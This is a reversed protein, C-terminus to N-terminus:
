ERTRLSGDMLRLEFHSRLLATLRRAAVGRSMEPELITMPDIPEGVELRFELRANPLKYWAQGRKLAPPDCRILVPLIPARSCLAMHAWGRHFRGLGRVPSRSGEPFVVLSRGAALRKACQEIAREGDLNPIYGAIRVIGRLAPNSWAQAKVVCDAQPMRSILYVVDLLTPHNAVVLVGRQSLRATGREELGLLGLWSGLRVFVRFAHHIVRQALLDRSQLRGGLIWLIPLVLTALCVAGIGFTAFLFGTGIIRLAREGREVFGRARSSTAPEFPDAADPALSRGVLPAQSASADDELSTAADGSAHAARRGPEVPSRVKAEREDQNRYACPYVV